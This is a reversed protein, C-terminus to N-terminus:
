SSWNGPPAPCRPITRSPVRVPKPRSNPAARSGAATLESCRTAGSRLRGRRSPARGLLAASGTDGVPAPPLATRGRRACARSGPMRVNVPGAARALASELADAADAPTLGAVPGIAGGAFTYSYAVPEGRRAWVTRRAIQLWHEHDVSRDFGYAAADIAALSGSADDLEQLREHAGVPLGSFALLPTVPILGRRGYLANSVPQIADTITRRRLAADSWVADLLAPGVGRGQASRAVFLSALFWDDGRVWASAFGAIAGTHEAVVSVGTALVHRQQGAFVDFPPAPPEFGHPRFVGGISDLFLTHLAPLDAATTPRLEM